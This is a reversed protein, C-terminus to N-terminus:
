GALAAGSWNGQFLGIYLKHKGTAAFVTREVESPKLWVGGASPNIRSKAEDVIARYAPLLSPQGDLAAIHQQILNVAQDVTGFVNSVTKEFDGQYRTSGAAQWDSRIGKGDGLLLSIRMRQYWSETGNAASNLLEIIRWYERERNDMGALNRSVEFTIHALGIMSTSSMVARGKLDLSFFAMGTLTARREEYMANISNVRQAHDRGLSALWAADMESQTRALQKLNMM